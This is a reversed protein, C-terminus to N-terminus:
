DLSKIRDCELSYLEGGRTPKEAKVIQSVLDANEEYATDPIDYDPVPLCYQKLERETTSIGCYNRM